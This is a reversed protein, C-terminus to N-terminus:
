PYIASKMEGYFSEGSATTVYAQYYWIGDSLDTTWLTFPSGAPGMTKQVDLEMDPDQSYLIGTEVVPGPINLYISNQVQSANNSLTIWDGTAVTILPPETTPPETPPVTTTVPAKVNHTLQINKGDPVGSKNSFSIWDSRGCAECVWGTENVNWVTPDGANRTLAINTKKGFDKDQGVIYTKANGGDNNCHFAFGVVTANDSLALTPGAQTALFAATALLAALAAALCIRLRKGRTRTTRSQNSM